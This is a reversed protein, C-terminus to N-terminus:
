LNLENVVDELMNELEEKTWASMLQKGGKSPTPPSNRRVETSNDRWRGAPECSALGRRWRGGGLKRTTAETDAKAQRGMSESQTPALM